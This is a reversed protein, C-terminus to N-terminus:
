RGSDAKLIHRLANEHGDVTKDLDERTTKDHTCRAKMELLDTVSTEVDFAPIGFKEYVYSAFSGGTCAFVTDTNTARGEKMGDRFADSYARSIGNCISRYAEDGDAIQTSLLRDGTISSMYHYAFAMKPSAEKIFRIVAQTEPESNPKPGRYNPSRYDDSSLNYSTDVLEWSADFNRNLDVGVFNLRNYWPDGLVMKERMDANVVPMVAIGCGDFVEPSESLLRKLVSLLIEPGSEGAHVAGICAIRNEPNGVFIANLPKGLVTKGMEKVTVGEFVKLEEIKKQIKDFSWWIYGDRVKIPRPSSVLEGVNTRGVWYAYVKGIEIDYDSYESFTNLVEIDGRFIIDNETPVLGEFYESEDRGYVFDPEERRYIIVSQTGIRPPNDDAHVQFNLKVCPVNHGNIEETVCKAFLKQVKKM